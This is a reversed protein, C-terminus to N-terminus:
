EGSQDGNVGSGVVAGDVPLQIVFRAGRTLNEVRIDGGHERVIGYCYSLGLGTGQGVGRTTFFPDFVRPLDEHGIGPGNDSIEVLIHPGAARSAVCIEGGLGDPGEGGAASAVALEANALVNAFVQELQPANVQAPPLPDSLELRVRVKAAQAHPRRAAVAARVIGNVDHWSRARREAGAFALLNRVVGAARNANDRIRNLEERTEEDRRTALMLETHGLVGQLPNNLEHAMGAVLHGVAALKEGQLLQTRARDLEDGVRAM